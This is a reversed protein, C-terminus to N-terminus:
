QTERLGSSVTEFLGLRLLMGPLPRGDVSAKGTTDPSEM